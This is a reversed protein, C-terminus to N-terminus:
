EYRMSKEPSILTILLTPLMLVTTTIVFIAANLPFLWFPSLYIPVVSLFYGSSDLQIIGTLMQIVCIHIGIINGLRLGSLVIRISRMVFVRQISRNSMGLTKLIGIMKVRELIIILIASIMGLLSVTLMIVIIVIANLNHTKLWDFIIPNLDKINEVRLNEVRLDLMAPDFDAMIESELMSPEFDLQDIISGYVIEDIELTLEDIKKISRCMIEYGSIQDDDWRNLRQVNRMDTMVMLDDMESFGTNYIGSVRFRDRRPPQEVFMMDLSEGVELQLIDSLRKSIIVDKTRASDVIRPLTGAVMKNKFFSWDFSGDVGKLVVGQIDNESRTVGAKIAYPNIAKVNKVAKIKEVLEDNTSIPVAEFSDNSAINVIQIHSGFGSLLSTIELRFGGIVAMSVIMVVIGIAVSIKAIRTAISSGQGHTSLKMRLALFLEVNM